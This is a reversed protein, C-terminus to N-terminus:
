VNRIPISSSAGEQLAVNWRATPTTGIAGYLLGADSAASIVIKSGHSKITYGDGTLHKEKKLEVTGGQWYTQLENMATCREGKVAKVANTTDFRLWLRSGDEDNATASSWGTLLLVLTSILIRKMTM